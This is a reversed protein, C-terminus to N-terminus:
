VYRRCRPCYWRRATKDYRLPTRCTPCARRIGAKLAKKIKLYGVGGMTSTVVMILLLLFFLAPLGAQVYRVQVQSLIENDTENSEFIENAPDAISTINFTGLEVGSTNWSFKITKSEGADLTVTEEYLTLNDSSTRLKFTDKVLGKNEVTLSVNVLEGKTATSPSVTQETIAINHYIAGPPLNIVASAGVATIYEVLSQITNPDYEVAKQAIATYTVEWEEGVRLHGVRWVLVM